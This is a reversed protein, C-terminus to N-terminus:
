VQVPLVRILPGSTELPPGDPREGFELSRKVSTVLLTCWLGNLLTLVCPGEVARRVRALVGLRFHKEIGDFM